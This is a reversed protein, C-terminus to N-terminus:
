EETEEVIRVTKMVVPEVPKDKADVKVGAIEDVVEMGELVKGFAAYDGDLFTADGLTIFFQSGASNPDGSRAMSIIGRDHSIPNEFGNSKFEGQIGYGPGGYGTGDPDGGQIVFGPVIRHFIVGDYFGEGALKLFNEVTAPAAAKDLELLIVGGNEMEIEVKVADTKEATISEGYGVAACGLLGITLCLCLAKYLGKKM